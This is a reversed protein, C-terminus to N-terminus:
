KIFGTFKVFESFESKNEGTTIIKANILSEGLNRTSLTPIQYSQGNQIPKTISVTAIIILESKNKRLQTSRFLAGIFPIDGLFPISTVTEIEKEDVLGGLIFSDGDGLEITTESSRTRLDAVTTEGRQDFRYINSLNQSIKLKIKNKREIKPAIKLTLGPEKTEGKGITPRGRGGIIGATVDSIITSGGSNNPKEEFTTYENKIEFSAEEGSLVSLNPQALIKAAKDNKIARIVPEIGIGRVYENWSAGSVNPLNFVGKNYDIGLQDVLEKDVDAILLKVNVQNLKPKKLVIKNILNESKVKELFDIQDSSNAGAGGNGSNAGGAGNFSKQQNQPTLGLAIVAMKYANDKSAEDPAEGTIIYGKKGPEALQTIEITSGPNKEEILRAIRELEGALPDITVKLNLLTKSEDGGFVSIDAYGDEVAFIVLKNTDIINYDLVKPNSTFVTSINESTTFLKSEGKKLIIEASNLYMSAFISFLVVAIKNNRM